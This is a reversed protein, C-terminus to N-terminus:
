QEFAALLRCAYNVGSGGASLRSPAVVQKGGFNVTAASILREANASGAALVFEEMASGM